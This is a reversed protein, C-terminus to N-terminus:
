SPTEGLLNQGLAAYSGAATNHLKELKQVVVASFRVQSLVLRIRECACHCFRRHQLGDYPLM